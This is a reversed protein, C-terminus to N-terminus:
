TGSRSNWYQRFFDQTSKGIMENIKQTQREDLSFPNERNAKEQSNETRKEHGNDKTENDEEDTM